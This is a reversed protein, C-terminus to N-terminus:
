VQWVKECKSLKPLTVCTHALTFLTVCCLNRSLTLDDGTSEGLVALLACRNANEVFCVLESLRGDGVGHPPAHSPKGRQSLFAHM